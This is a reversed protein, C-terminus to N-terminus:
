SITICDLIMVVSFARDMATGFIFVYPFGGQDLELLHGCQIYMGTGTVDETTHMNGHIPPCINIRKPDHVHSIIGCIHLKRHIKNGKSIAVNM